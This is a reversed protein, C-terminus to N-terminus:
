SCGSPPARCVAAKDVERLVEDVVARVADSLPRSLEEGPVLRSPEAGWLRFRVAGMAPTAHLLWRLSEALALHHASAPHSPLSLVEDHDFRHITGPRAGGVVADVLWVRPEGRWQSSLHLVDPATCLSVGPPLSRSGLAEVVATGFGDDGMVPNGLGAVLVTGAEAARKV